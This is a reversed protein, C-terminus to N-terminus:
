PRASRREGLHLFVAARHKCCRGDQGAPCTCTLSPGAVRVCYHKGTSGRVLYFREGTAKVTGRVLVLIHEARAREIARRQTRTLTSMSAM